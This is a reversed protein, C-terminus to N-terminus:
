GVKSLNTMGKRWSNEPLYSDMVSAVTRALLRGLPATLTVQSGDQIVIGEKSLSALDRLEKAFYAQWDTYSNAFPSALDMTGLGYLDQLLRKRILDDRDFRHSNNILDTGSQASEMWQKIDKQNQYFGHNFSSIATPGVGIIPMNRRTSMGQFNRCIHGTRVAEALPDTKKAFHDLGVFEYNHRGFTEIAELMLEVSSLGDPMDKKSFSKQWKFIEPIVALRYFAIRDPALFLVKELTKKMSSLDQHPLGYILDFNIKGLERSRIQQTFDKVLEFPQIRNVAKQVQPNFDQVGLSCRNVGIEKLADLHNLSASRPDLEVAIEVDDALHFHEDLFTKLERLSDPSLFTPTGGGLHVSLLKRGQLMKSVGLLEAKLASMFEPRPDNQQQLNVIKKSCGCYYCLQHCYPVHIYLGAGQEPSMDKLSQKAAEWDFKRNWMPVIPYSTHRPLALQSYKLFTNAESTELKLM